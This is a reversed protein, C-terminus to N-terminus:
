VVCRQEEQKLLASLAQAACESNIYTKVPPYLVRAAIGSILVHDRANAYFSVSALIIGM